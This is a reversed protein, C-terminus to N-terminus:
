LQGSVIAISNFFSDNKIIKIIKPYLKEADALVKKGKDTIEWDKIPEGCGNCSKM